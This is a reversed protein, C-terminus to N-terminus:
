RCRTRPCASAASTSTTSTGSRSATSCWCKPPSGSDEKLVRRADARRRRRPDPLAAEEAALTRPLATSSAARSPRRPARVGARRALPLRARGRERRRGPRLGTFHERSRRPSRQRCRDRGRADCAAAAGAPEQAAAARRARLRLGHQGLAARQVGLRRLATARICEGAPLLPWPLPRRRAAQPDRPRPAPRPRRLRASERGYVYEGVGGSFM